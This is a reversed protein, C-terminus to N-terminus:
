LQMTNKVLILDSIAILLEDLFPSEVYDMSLFWTQCPQFEHFGSQSGLEYAWAMNFFRFFYYVKEFFFSLIKQQCVYVHKRGKYLIEYYFSIKDAETFFFQQESFINKFGM